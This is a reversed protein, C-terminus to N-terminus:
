KLSTLPPFRSRVRNELVAWLPKIISLDPLQAPWSLHQFENQHKEFWSQVKRAIHILANDDQFIADNNPFLIHIMTFLKDILIDLYENTTIRGNPTIPGTSYYSIVAWIM